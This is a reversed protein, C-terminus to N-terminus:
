ELPLRAHAEARLSTGRKRAMQSAAMYLGVAVLIAVVALFSLQFALPTKPVIPVSQPLGIAIIIALAGVVLTGMRGAIADSWSLRRFTPNLRLNFVGVGLMSFVLVLSMARLTVGIAWGFFTAELLFVSGLMATTRLAVGPAKLKTTHLFAAPLLGGEAWAFLYRSADLMQPAVTKGAIVLVPVNILVALADPAVLGILGPTTALEAHKSQALPNVV